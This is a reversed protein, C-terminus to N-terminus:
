GSINLLRPAPGGDEEDVAAPRLTEENYHIPLRPTDRIPTKNFAQRTLTVRGLPPFSFLLAGRSRVGMLQVAEQTSLFNRWNFPDGALQTM